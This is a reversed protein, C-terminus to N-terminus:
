VTVCKDRCKLALVVAVAAEQESSAALEVTTLAAM